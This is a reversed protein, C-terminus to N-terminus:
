TLDAIVASSKENKAVLTKEAIIQFPMADGTKALEETKMPRLTGVAWYSPDILLVDRTLGYQVPVTTLKGFDSVYVDAAGIITAQQEGSVETRIQAIGTFASFQQKHVAGMYAQSPRAGNNFASALVTKLLTESFARQTGNTAAAVTGASYGGSAGGAGRSVNSTMWALAGASEAATGAGGAVSAFNGLFRAEMDTALEEGKQVKQWALESSVGAHDVAEQTGSVAGQEKFIQTRNGPRVTVKPATNATTDGQIQANNANPTRLSFTQWEHYTATAKEKGINSTFPTKNAAIKYIMNELDERNGVTAFTQQTNAPVAM